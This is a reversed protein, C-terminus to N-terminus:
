QFLKQSKLIGFVEEAVKNRWRAFVCPIIVALIGAANAVVDMFDMEREFFPQIVELAVGLLFIATALAWLAIRPQAFIAFLTLVYFSLFHSAKDWPILAIQSSALDDSLLMAWLLFGLWALFGARAIWMGAM